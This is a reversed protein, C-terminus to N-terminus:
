RCGLIPIETSKRRLRQRWLGGLLLLSGMLVVTPPEPVTASIQINDFGNIVSAGPDGTFIVNSTLQLKLTEGGHAALLSTLNITSTTWATDGAQPQFRLLLRTTGSYIEATIYAQDIGTAFGTLTSMFTLTASRIDTPVRFSQTLTNMWDSPAGNVPFAVSAYAANQGSIPNNGTACGTATTQAAFGLACSAVTSLPATSVSWGSLGLEFGPNNLLDIQGALLSTGSATLFLIIAPIRNM